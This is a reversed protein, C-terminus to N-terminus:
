LGSKYWQKVLFEKPIKKAGM